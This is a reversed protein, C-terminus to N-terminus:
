IGPAAGLEVVISRTAAEGGRFDFNEM